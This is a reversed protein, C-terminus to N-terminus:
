YRQSFSRMMKLATPTSYCNTSDDAPVYYELEDEMDFDTNKELNELIDSDIITMNTDEEFGSSLEIESPLGKKFHVIHNTEDINDDIEMLEQSNYNFSRQLRPSYNKRPLSVDRNMKQTDYKLSSVNYSTQRGQSTSRAATYMYGLSSGLSKYLICIDDCLMKMFNDDLLDNEKMYRRMLKFIIKLKNEFDSYGNSQYDNIKSKGIYLLEQVRQRFIYKTLDNNDIIAGTNFDILDPIITTEDLLVIEDSNILYNDSTVSQEDPFSANVGYLEVEFDNIDKTKFHYIKECESVIIDTEIKDVWQNTKWDYLLGDTIQLRTNLIAPYLFQNIIEGYVFGTNELNDVFYYESKKLEAFMNFLQANHSTGFGVFVNNYDTNVLRQLKEHIIEGATPEGDSMFIHCIQNTANNTKYEIMDKNATEIALGINTGGEPYLDKIKDIMEISNDPNILTIDVLKKVVDCFTNIQIYVEIEQKALYRIMNIFTQKLFDMKSTSKFVVESMSGTVDITFLMFLPTKTIKTKKMKLKIIGFTEDDDTVKIVPKSQVNHPLAIFQEINFNNSNM